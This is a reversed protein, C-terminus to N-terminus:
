SVCKAGKTKNDEDNNDKLYSYTKPRLGVFEKMIQGGLEDKMLGIVKKNKGKPLPRYIEFNSADFRTKNDQAIDKYIDDTKVPVIFSVTDMYCLKANEGYKPKEYDFWFEYMLTKSVDLISLGLYVPKNMLIQIKRIEIALLNETFFTATHYNPESLLYNRRKETTVLKINRYKRVNEMTKGFVANNMLKFFDKEFNNRAKQRLKTNIDDIYPKLWAKQNFKIVRHVKELILGHNLAQKLNRLHIVYVTKNHLNIVLKEIKEIKMREPLFPLVNYLEHLKQPCQVDVELFYVEDSEENYKKIFYENFQSSDEIWEFNNVSLKQSMAWGYLNNVDWYELYLSEKNKDYDKM